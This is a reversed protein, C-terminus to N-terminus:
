SGLSKGQGSVTVWTYKKLPGVRYMVLTTAHKTLRLHVTGDPDITFGNTLVTEDKGAVAAAAANYALQLNHEGRQAVWTDSAAMAATNADDEASVRAVVVAMSDFVVVGIIALAVILKTLWGLVIDGREAALATRARSPRTVLSSEAM